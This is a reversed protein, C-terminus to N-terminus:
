ATAVKKDEKKDAEKETDKKKKLKAKAMQIIKIGHFVLFAFSTTRATGNVKLQINQQKGIMLGLTVTQGFM